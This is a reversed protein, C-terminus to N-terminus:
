CFSPIWKPGQKERLRTLAFSEVLLIGSQSITSRLIDGIQSAPFSSGIEPCIWQFSSLNLVSRQHKTTRGLQAIM